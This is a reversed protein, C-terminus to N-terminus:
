PSAGSRYSLGVLFRRSEVFVQNIIPPDSYYESTRRRLANIVSASLSVNRTLDISINADLQGFPDRYLPRGLADGNSIELLRSRWAWAVGARVGHRDYTAAITYNDRSMQELPVRYGAGNDARFSDIGTYSAQIGLGALAGPLFTFRHAYGIEVGGLWGDAANAPRSVRIARGQITEVDAQTRVFGSVTKYFIAAYLNGAPAFYWELAADYQSATLAGLRPNGATGVANVFDVTVTPALDTFSPRTLQRSWALRAFLQHAVEARLNISPLLDAYRRTSLASAGGSVTLDTLAYRLGANGQVITRGLPIGFTAEVYGNAVTEGIEYGLLPQPPPAAPSLGFLARVSGVRDPALAAGIPAVWRPQPYSRDFLRDGTQEVLRSGQVPEFGPSADAQQLGQRHRVARHALRAGIKLSEILGGIAYDADIRGATETSADDVLVDNFSGFRWAGADTPDIGGVVFRPLDNTVAYTVAPAQALITLSSTEYRFGTQTRALDALITLRGDRYRTSLAYQVLDLHGEGKNTSAELPVNTWQGARITGDQAARVFPGIADGAALGASLSTNTFDLASRNYLVDGTFELAASPRWQVSTYATSLTKTGRLARKIANVPADITDNAATRRLMNTDTRFIDGGVDQGQHSVGVLAGVEGIGTTGRVSVHAAVNDRLRDDLTGSAAKIQISAQSGDADFPRRTHFDIVGGIGGEIQSASPTKYVDIGSVIDSPLAAIDFGRFTTSTLNRGNLRDETQSLGRITVIGGAARVSLQVGPIRRVVDALSTDPINRIDADTLVSVSQLSRRKIDAPEGGNLRTGIVVIDARPADAAPGSDIPSAAHAVPVPAPAAVLVYGGTTPRASLGTGALLRTLAEEPPMQGAVPSARRNRVLQPAFAVQRGTQQSFLRLAQALAMRPIAVARRPMQARQAIAPAAHGTAIVSAIGLLRGMLRIM